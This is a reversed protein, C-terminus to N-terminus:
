DFKGILCPELNATWAFGLDTPAGNDEIYRVAAFDGRLQASAVDEDVKSGAGSYTNGRVEIGGVILDGIDDV